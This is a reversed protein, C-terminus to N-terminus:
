PEVPVPAHGSLDHDPAPDGVRDESPHLLHRRGRFGKVAQLRRQVLHYWGWIPGLGGSPRYANCERSVVAWLHLTSEPTSLPRIVVGDLTPTSTDNGIPFRSRDSPTFPLPDAQDTKPNDVVMWDKSQPQNARQFAFGIEQHDPLKTGDLIQM